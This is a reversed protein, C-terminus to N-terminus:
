FCSKHIFANKPKPLKDISVIDSIQKRFKEGEYFTGEVLVFTENCNKLVSALRNKNLNFIIERTFDGNEADSKYPYLYLGDATNMLYGSTIVEKKYKINKELLNFISVIKSNNAYAYDTATFILILNLFMTIKALAVMRM